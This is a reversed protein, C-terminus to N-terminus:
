NFNTRDAHVGAGDMDFGTFYLREHCKPCRRDAPDAGHDLLLRILKVIDKRAAYHLATYGTRNSAAVMARHQILEGALELDGQEAAFHLHTFGFQDSGDPDAGGVCAM